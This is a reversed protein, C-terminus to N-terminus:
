TNNHTSQNFLHSDDSESTQRSVPLQPQTNIAVVQGQEKLDCMLTVQGPYHNTHTAWMFSTMTCTTFADNTTHQTTHSFVAGQQLTLPIFSLFLFSKHIILGWGNKHEERCYCLWGCGCTNHECSVTTFCAYELVYM